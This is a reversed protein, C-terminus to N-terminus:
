ANGEKFPHEKQAKALADVLKQIKNPEFALEFGCRPCKWILLGSEVRNVELMSECNECGLTM